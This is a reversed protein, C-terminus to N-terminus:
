QRSIFLDAIAIDGPYTVKINTTEGDVLVLNDMGAAEMVSADDTFTDRYPLSYAAKLKSANFGQPTQVARYEARNVASSHGEANVHRLSDTVAVAPIAGDAGQRVTEIVANIIRPTVVPRAGDHVTIIEANNPIIDIAAKVSHWRIAGGTVISPSTYHHVRCMKLWPEIMEHSLVLIVEGTHSSRINDITTMLVPRGDALPCFQKPLEGGFRSGSGAAVIVHYIGTHTEM